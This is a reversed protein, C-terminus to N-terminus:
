GKQVESRIEELQQRTKDRLDQPILPLVTDTVKQVVPWTRSEYITRVIGTPPSGEESRDFVWLLLYLVLVGVLAGKVVGLIGGLFRDYSLLKLKELLSRFILAIVHGVVIAGVLVLAFAVYRNVPEDLSPFWDHLTGGFAHSTRDALILGGVIFVIGALQLVFGRILGYIFAIGLLGLMLIDVANVSEVAAQIMPAEEV